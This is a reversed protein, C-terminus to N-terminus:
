PGISIPPFEAHLKKKTKWGRLLDKSIRVQLIERKMQADVDVVSDRPMYRAEISWRSNVNTIGDETGLRWM